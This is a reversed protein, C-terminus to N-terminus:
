RTVAVTSLGGLGGVVVVRGYMKGEDMTKSIQVTCESKVMKSGEIKHM